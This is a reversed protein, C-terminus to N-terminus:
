LDTTRGVSCAAPAKSREDHRSKMSRYDLDVQPETALPYLRRFEAALRRLAAPCSKYSRAARLMLHRACAEDDTAGGFHHRM